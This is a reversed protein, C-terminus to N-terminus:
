LSKCVMENYKLVGLYFLGFCSPAVSFGVRYAFSFLNTGLSKKKKKKEHVM